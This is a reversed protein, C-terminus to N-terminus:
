DRIYVAIASYNDMDAHKGNKIVEAEMKGIWTEPDPSHRMLREMHRETIWEWFGDSCLLYTENRNLSVDGGLEHKPVSRDTGLARLLSSRDEHGRIDKEKIEGALALMQPVSHDLTRSVIKRNVFRYVRSDGVHGWRAVGGTIELCTLTTKMGDRVGRSRQEAALKEHCYLFCHGIGEWDGGFLKAAEDVVLRSAREGSGHGGLGDALLFLFASGNQAIGVCDENVARDGIKSISAHTIPM